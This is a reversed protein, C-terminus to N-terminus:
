RKGKLRRKLYDIGKGFPLVEQAGSDMDRIIITDDMAEKQGLILAYPVELRAAIKLQSKISDKSLSQALPIKAQRLAEVLRLSKRKAALGLQIFFVKPRHPKKPHVNREQLLAVIRDIGLAGGIACVDRNGIIAGLYDYRGGSALALPAKKANQAAVPAAIDGTEKEEGKEDTKGKEETKAGTSKEEPLEYFLEFVTRSYYDLGRVLRHDLLYPVQACDLFELLEKLHQRCVSCLFNIIQPAHEGAEKCQEDKCDLARLPNDKVRRKCDKCLQHIHKRYYMGLEKRYSMRCDKCGLSNLHVTVEDLGMELIILFLVHIVLADALADDAGLIELGFQSFERFRGRQPNEHRFFNGEYWFMVPQSWTHMGHEAYARMVPATGEPRLTLSEGGRTKFTYMQKEVIDTTGGLTAEFLETREIHPTAIPGFGYFSAIKKAHEIFDERLLYEDGFIDRTGKVTHYLEKKKTKSLRM